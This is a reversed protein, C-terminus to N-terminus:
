NADVEWWKKITVQLQLLPIQNGTAAIVTEWLRMTTPCTLFLHQFTEHANENCYCCRVDDVVGNQDVRRWYTTEKKVDGYCFLSRLHFGKSGFTIM